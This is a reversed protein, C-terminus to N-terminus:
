AIFWNGDGFQEALLGSWLEPNVVFLRDPFIMGVPELAGL